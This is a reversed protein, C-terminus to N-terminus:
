RLQKFIMTLYNTRDPLCGFALLENYLGNTRLKCFQDAWNM